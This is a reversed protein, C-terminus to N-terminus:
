TTTLEANRKVVGNRSRDSDRSPDEIPRANATLWQTDEHGLMWTKDMDSASVQFGKSWNLNLHARLFQEHWGTTWKGLPELPQLVADPDLLIKTGPYDARLTLIAGQIAQLDARPGTSEGKTLYMSTATMQPRAATCTVRVLFHKDQIEAFEIKSVQVNKRNGVQIM